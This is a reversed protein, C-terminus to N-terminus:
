PTKGENLEHLEAVVDFDDVKEFGVLDLDEVVEMNQALM